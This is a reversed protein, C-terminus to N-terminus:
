MKIEMMFQQKNTKEKYQKAKSVRKKNVMRNTRTKIDTLQKMTNGDYKCNITWKFSLFRRNM